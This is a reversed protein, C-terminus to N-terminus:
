EGSAIEWDIAVDDLGKMARTLARETDAARELLFSVEPFRKAFDEEVEKWDCYRTHDGKEQWFYNISRLDGPTLKRKVM